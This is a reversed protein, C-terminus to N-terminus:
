PANTGLRDSRACCDDLDLQSSPSANGLILHNCRVSFFQRRASGDRAKGGARVLDRDCDFSGASCGTSHASIYFCLDWAKARCLYEGMRKLVTEMPKIIVRKMLIGHAVATGGGIVGATTLVISNWDM